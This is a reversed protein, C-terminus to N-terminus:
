NVARQEAKDDLATLSTKCKGCVAGTFGRTIRNWQACSRCTLEILRSGDANKTSRTSVARGFLTHMLELYDEVAALSRDTQRLRYRLWLPRLFSQAVFAWAVIGALVVPVWLTFKM